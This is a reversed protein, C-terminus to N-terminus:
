INMRTQARVSKNCIDKYMKGENTYRYINFLFRKFKFLKVYNSWTSIDKFLFIMHRNCIYAILLGKVKLRLPKTNPNTTNLVM